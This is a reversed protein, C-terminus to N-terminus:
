KKVKNTLNIIEKLYQEYNAAAQKRSQIIEDLLVSMQEFYKPNTPMEEIILKRVNNEITEAVAEKDKQINETIEKIFEKGKKINKMMEEIMLKRVNNEITEAVTEKDKQINEPIEKIFEKGKKVILDVLTLNDFAYIKESDKAGIYTDILHRMDAEYTKLDIYDGVHHMVETRVAEYHTVDQRIRETEAFTYGAELMDNAILAYNRTLSAVYKYLTHRKRENQKLIGPDTTETMGFYAFYQPTEYPPEVPEC